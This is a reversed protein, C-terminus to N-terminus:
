MGSNTLVFREIRELIAMECGSRVRILSSRVRDVRRIGCTNRLYMMELVEIKRRKQASLSWTKSGYVVTPIM